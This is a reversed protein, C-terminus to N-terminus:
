IRPMTSVKQELAFRMQAMIVQLFDRMNLYATGWERLKDPREGDNTGHDYLVHEHVGGCGLKESLGGTFFSSSEFTM